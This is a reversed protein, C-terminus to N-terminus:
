SLFFGIALLNQKEKGIRRKTQIAALRKGEEKERKEREKTKREKRKGEYKEREREKKKRERKEKRRRERKKRRGETRPLLLLSQGNVNRIFALM